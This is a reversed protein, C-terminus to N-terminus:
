RGDRNLILTIKALAHNLPIREQEIRRPGDHTPDNLHRHLAAEAPTLEPPPTPDGTTIPRGHPDHDTGFPAYQHYTDTDMLVTRVPHGHRRLRAVIRLGATDIDGWYIVPVRGLASLATHLVHHARDGDGLVLLGGPIRPPFYFATDRNEVVLIRDVPHAPTFTDGATLIDWRRGGAAAHDPDLYTVRVQAPRGRLELAPLGALHTVLARRSAQDLWKGHLGPVPVQRPTLQGGPPPHAALHTATTILLDVDVQEWAVVARLVSADATRPFAATLQQWRTTAATYRDLQGGGAWTAAARPTLTLRNPLEQLTPGIKRTAWDLRAGEPLAPQTQRWDLAWQRAARWQGALAQGTPPNLGITLGAPTGTTLIDTLNRTLWTRARERTDQPTKM